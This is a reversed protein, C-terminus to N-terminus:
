NKQTSKYKSIEKEVVSRAYTPVDKGKSKKTGMSQMIFDVAKTNSMKWGATQNNEFLDKIAKDLKPRTERAKEIRQETAKKRGDNLHLAQKEKDSKLKRLHNQFHESAPNFEASCLVSLTFPAFEYLNKALEKYKLNHREELEKIVEKYHEGMHKVTAKIAMQVYGNMEDYTYTVQTFDPRKGSKKPM